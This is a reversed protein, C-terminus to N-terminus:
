RSSGPPPLGCVGPFCSARHQVMYAHQDPTLGAPLLWVSSAVHSVSKCYVEQDTRMMVLWCLTKVRYISATVGAGWPASSPPLHGAARPPLMKLPGWCLVKQSKEKGQRKYLGKAGGPSVQIRLYIRSPFPLHREKSGAPLVPHQTVATQM